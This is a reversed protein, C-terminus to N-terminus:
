GRWNEMYRVGPMTFVISTYATSSAPFREVGAVIVISRLAGYTTSPPFSRGQPM